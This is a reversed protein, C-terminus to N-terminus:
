TRKLERGEIWEGWRLTTEGAHRARVYESFLKLTELRQIIRENKWEEDKMATLDAGGILHQREIITEAPIGPNRIMDYMAMFTTTRGHGARCHFHLWADGPLSEVFDLFAEITETDPQTRDTVYFRVYRFGIAEVVEKETQVNQPAFSVAEVRGKDTKGRPVFTTAVGSIGALREEEDLAVEEPTKGENALNNKKHWSVPLGDAFGHSEQRLDVDYIPAGPAAAAASLKTYLSAFGAATCQASGSIRLNDLGERTPPEDEPEVRWNDSAMRFNRPEALEPDEDLRWKAESVSAATLLLLSVMLIATKKLLNRM